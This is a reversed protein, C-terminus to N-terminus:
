TQGGRDVVDGTPRATPGFATMGARVLAMGPETANRAKGVGFLMAALILLQAAALDRGSLFPLAQTALCAAGGIAAVALKKYRALLALPACM